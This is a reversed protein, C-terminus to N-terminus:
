CCFFFIQSMSTMSTVVIINTQTLRTEPHSKFLVLMRLLVYRFLKIRLMQLTDENEGKSQELYKYEEVDLWFNLLHLGSTGTLFERFARM